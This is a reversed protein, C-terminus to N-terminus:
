LANGVSSMAQDFVFGVALLLVVVGALVLRVNAREAGLAVALMERQVLLIMCIGATFPLPMFIYTPVDIKGPLYPAVSPNLFTQQVFFVASLAPTVWIFNRPSWQVPEGRLNFHNPIREPLRSYVSITTGINAATAAFGVVECLAGILVATSM